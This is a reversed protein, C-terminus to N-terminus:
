LEEKGADLARLASCLKCTCKGSAMMEDHSWTKVKERAAQEVKRLAAYEESCALLSAKLAANEAELEAVRAIWPITRTEAEKLRANEQELAVFAECLQPYTGQLDFLDDQLSM